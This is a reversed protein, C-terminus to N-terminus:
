ELVIDEFKEGALIRCRTVGYDLVFLDCWHTLPKATGDYTIQMIKKLRDKRGIAEEFSWGLRLRGYVKYLVLNLERCWASLSKKVGDIEYILNNSRNNAQEEDNSWCCNLTHHIFM